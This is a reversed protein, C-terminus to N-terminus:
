LSIGPNIYEFISSRSWPISVMSESTKNNWENVLHYNITFLSPSPHETSVFAERLMYLNDENGTYIYDFM